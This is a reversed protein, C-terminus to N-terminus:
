EGGYLFELLQKKCHEQQIRVGDWTGRTDNIGNLLKIGVGGARRFDLLNKTYDDVLFDSESVAKGTMTEIAKAKDTGDPIFLVEIGPLNIDAWQKKEQLAFESDTLYCTAGIIEVDPCLTKVSYVADIVETNPKLSRFYGEQYLEEFVAAKRFEAATGDFDVFLRRDKHRM